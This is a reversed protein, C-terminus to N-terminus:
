KVLIMKRTESFGEVNLKYFYVGSSLSAGNFQVSYSGANMQQNILNSVNRGAMDFVSINVFGSKPISFNIKTAPNFPNPYNQSLSYKEAIEQYSSVIGTITPDFRAIGSVPKGGAISLGYGAVYIHPGFKAMSIVASNTGSGLNQWANLISNYRAIKNVNIGGATSFWGGIYVDKGDVLISNIADDINSSKFVSWKNNVSSYLALCKSQITQGGSTTFGGAVLISDGSYQKIDFVGPGSPSLGMVGIDSGNGMPSWETGDWEAISNFTVGGQINESSFRGGAYLMNSSNIYSLVNVEGNFGNGMAFWQSGNWRAVNYATTGSIHLFHGGAFLNIGDTALSYVPGDTVGNGLSSWTTGDWKAINNANVGGATLFSGGIYVNTGIVCIAYVAGNTGGAGPGVGSGLDDWNNGNWKAIGGVYKNGANQFLGGMYIGGNASILSRSQFPASYGGLGLNSDSTGVSNWNTGNFSALFNVPTNGALGFFGTAIINDGQLSLSSVASNMGGNVQEWNNGNYKVIGRVQLPGAFEFYGGVYIDIGKTKITQVYGSLDGGSLASWINSSIDYQAIKSAKIKGSIPSSVSDFQGGVYVKTGINDMAYIPKDTGPSFPNGLPLWSEEYLRAINNLRVGLSSAFEGGIYLIGDIFLLSNVNVNGSAPVLISGVPYIATGDWRVVQNSRGGFYISGDYKAISWVMKEYNGVKSWVKTTTDYVALGSIANGGATKFQGGAYVKDGDAFVTYMLATGGTVSPNTFGVNPYTGFAEWKTGNWKALGNAIVNGVSGFIGAIYIENGRVFTGYVYNCAGSPAFKDDWMADGPVFVDSQYANNVPAKSEFDTRINEGAAIFKPENNKGLYMKYGKVDINGQFQSGTMLSGDSNLVKEIPTKFGTQAFSSSIALCVFALSLICM